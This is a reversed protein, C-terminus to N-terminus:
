RGMYTASIIALNASDVGEVAPPQTPIPKFLGRAAQMLDSQALASGAIAWCLALTYVAVKDIM